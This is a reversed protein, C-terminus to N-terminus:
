DIWVWHFLISDSLLPPFSFFFNCIEPSEPFLSFFFTGVLVGGPLPPFLLFLLLTRRSFVLATGKDQLLSFFFVFFFFLPALFLFPIVFLLVVTIASPERPVFFIGSLFL